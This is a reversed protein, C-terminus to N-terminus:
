LSNETLFKYSIRKKICEYFADKDMLYIDSNIDGIQPYVEDINGVKRGGAALILPIAAKNIVPRKVTTTLVFEAGNEFAAHLLNYALILTLKRYGKLFAMQELYSINSKELTELDVSWNVSKRKEWLESQKVLENPLMIGFGITEDAIATLCIGHSIYFKYTEIDTGLLFGGQNTHDNEINLPLREKIKIFDAADELISRRINPNM